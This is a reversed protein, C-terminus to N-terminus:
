DQGQGDQTTGESVSRGSMTADVFRTSVALNSTVGIFVLLVLLVFETYQLFVGGSVLIGVHRAVKRVDGAHGGSPHVERHATGERAWPHRHGCWALQYLGLM